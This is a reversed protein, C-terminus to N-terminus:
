EDAADSTYLLCVQYYYYVRWNYSCTCKKNCQKHKSNVGHADDQCFMGRQLTSFWFAKVFMNIICMYRM